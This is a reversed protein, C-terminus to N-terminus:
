VNSREAEGMLMLIDELQVFGEAHEGSKTFVDTFEDKVQDTKNIFM